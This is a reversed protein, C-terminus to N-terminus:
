PSGACRGRAPLPWSYRVERRGSANIRLLDATGHERVSTSLLAVRYANQAPRDPPQRNRSWAHRRVPGHRSASVAHSRRSARVRPRRAARELRRRGCGATICFTLRKMPSQRRSTVISLTTGYAALPCGVPVHLADLQRPEREQRDGRHPRWSRTSRPRAPSKMSSTDLSHAAATAPRRPRRAHVVWAFAQNFGTPGCRQLRSM